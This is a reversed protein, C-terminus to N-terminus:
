DPRREPRLSVRAQLHQLVAVVRVVQEAHVLVDLRAPRRRALGGLRNRGSASRGPAAAGRPGPGGIAPNAFYGSWTPWRQGPADRSGAGDRAVVPVSRPRDAREVARPEARPRRM